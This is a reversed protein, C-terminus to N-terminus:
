VSRVSSSKHYTILENLSNFKVVWLFYKLADDRLVRFHQINLGTRAEVSRSRSNSCLAISICEGSPSHFAAAPRARLTVSSIPVMPLLQPWRSM